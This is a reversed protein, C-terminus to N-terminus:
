VYLDDGLIEKAEAIANRCGQAADANGCYMAMKRISQELKMKRDELNNIHESIQNALTKNPIAKILNPGRRRWEIESEERNDM